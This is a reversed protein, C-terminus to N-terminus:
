VYLTTCPEYVARANIMPPTVFTNEARYIPQLNPLVPRIEYQPINIVLDCNNYIARYEYPTPFKIDKYIPHCGCNM